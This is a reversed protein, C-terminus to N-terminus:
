KKNAEELLEKKRLENYRTIAEICLGSFVGGFCHMDKNCGELRCAKRVLANTADETVTIDLKIKDNKDM